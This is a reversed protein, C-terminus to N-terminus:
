ARLCWNRLYSYPDGPLALFAASSSRNWFLPFPSFLHINHRAIPKCLSQQEKFPKKHALKKLLSMDDILNVTTQASFFNHEDTLHINLHNNYYQFMLKPICLKQFLHKWEWSHPPDVETPLVTLSSWRLWGTLKCWISYGELNVALHDSFQTSIHVCSLM